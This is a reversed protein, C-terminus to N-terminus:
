LNPFQKEIYYSSPQYFEELRCAKVFNTEADQLNRMTEAALYDTTPDKQYWCCKQSMVKWYKWEWVFNCFGDERYGTDTAELLKAYANKSIETLREYEKYGETPAHFSMFGEPRQRVAHRAELYDKLCRIIEAKWPYWNEEADKILDKYNM